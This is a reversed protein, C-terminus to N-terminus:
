HPRISEPILLEPFLRERHLHLENVHARIQDDSYGALRATNISDVEYDPWAVSRMGIKIPKTFLGDRVLNYISASSRYGSRTKVEPLRIFNM